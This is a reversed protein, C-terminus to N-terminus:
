TGEPEHEEFDETSAALDATGPTPTTTEKKARPKRKRKETRAPPQVTAQGDGSGTGLLKPAFQSLLKDNNVSEHRRIETPLAHCGFLGLASEVLTRKLTEAQEPGLSGAFKSLYSPNTFDAFGFAQVVTVADPNRKIKEAIAAMAHTVELVKEVNKNDPRNRFLGGEFFEEQVPKPVISEIWKITKIVQIPQM